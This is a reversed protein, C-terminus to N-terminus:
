LQVGRLQEVAGRRTAAFVEPGVWWVDSGVVASVLQGRWRERTPLEPERWVASWEDGLRVLSAGPRRALVLEKQQQTLRM